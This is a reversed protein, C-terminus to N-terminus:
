RVLDPCGQSSLAPCNAGQPFVRISKNHWHAALGKGTEEEKPDTPSCSLLSFIKVAHGRVRNVTSLSSHAYNIVDIKIGLETRNSQVLM